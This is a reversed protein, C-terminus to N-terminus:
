YPAVLHTVHKHPHLLNLVCKGRRTLRNCSAKLFAAVAARMLLNCLLTAAAVVAAPDCSSEKNLM